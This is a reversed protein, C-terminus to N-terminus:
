RAAAPTERSAAAAAPANGNDAWSGFRMRKLAADLAAEAQQETAFGGVRKQCRKGADDYGLSVVYCYSRGWKIVSGRM